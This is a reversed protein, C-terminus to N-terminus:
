FYYGPKLYCLFYLNKLNFKQLCNKITFECQNYEDGYGTIFYWSSEGSDQKKDWKMIKYKIVLPIKKYVWNELICM